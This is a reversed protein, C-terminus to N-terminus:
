SVRKKLISYPVHPLLVDLEPGKLAGTFIIRLSQFVLKPPAEVAKRVEKIITKIQQVSYCDEGEDTHLKELLSSVSQKVQVFVENESEGSLHNRCEENIEFSESLLLKSVRSIESLREFDTRLDYIANSWWENGLREVQERFEGTWPLTLKGLEEPSKSRLYHANYWDLKSLEFKAGTSNVRDFSFNAAAKDIDFLDIGEPHSWGLLCLFNVLAEPIFGADIFDKVTTFGSKNRKSLKSGDEGLILPLHAFNPLSAQAARFIVIHKATNTLHDAGRIIHTIKMDIDDAVSALHYTPSGDSRLIVPDPGLSQPSFRCDGLILDHVVIEDEPYRIRLCNESDLYASGNERLKEALALHKDLRQSQRYPAYPGEPDLDVGEDWSFGLWKLSSLINAENEAFSRERDTDDIRLVFEGGMKKVALFNFLATRAGGIHLEGTPSPAFRVRISM